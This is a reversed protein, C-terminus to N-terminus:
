NNAIQQDPTEKPLCAFPSVHTSMGGDVTVVSGTMYSAGPMCMFAVVNAIESANAFRRLPIREEMTRKVEIPMQVHVTNFM